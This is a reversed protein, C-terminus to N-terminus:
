ADQKDCGNEHRTGGLLWLEASDYVLCIIVRVILELDLLYWDLSTGRLPIDILPATRLILEPVYQNAIFGVVVEGYFARIAFLSLNLNTLFLPVRMFNPVAPDFAPLIVMM